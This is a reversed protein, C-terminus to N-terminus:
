PRWKPDYDPHSDYVEARIKVADQLGTAYGGEFNPFEAEAVAKRYAALLKRGAEVEHLVRAPDHAILFPAIEEDDRHLMDALPVDQDSLLMTTAPGDDPLFLGYQWDPGAVSAARKATAEDDSLRAALFEELTM